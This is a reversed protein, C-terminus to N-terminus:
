SRQRMQMEPRIEDQIYRTDNQERECKEELIKAYKFLKRSLGCEIGNKDTATVSYKTSDICTFPSGVHERGPRDVRLYAMFEDDKAPIYTNM